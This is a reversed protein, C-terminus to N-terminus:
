ISLNPLFIAPYDTTAFFEIKEVVATATGAGAQVVLAVAVADAGSIAATGSAALNAAGDTSVAVEDDGIYIASKYVPGATIADTAEDTYDYVTFAGGNKQDAIFVWENSFGSIDLLEIQFYARAATQTLRYTIVAVFGDLLDAKALATLVPKTSANGGTATAILGTGGVVSASNFTGWAGNQEWIEGLTKSTEGLAYVGNKFDSSLIPVPTAGGAGSAANYDVWGTVPPPISMAVWGDVPRPVGYDVWGVVPPPISMAAWGDVPRPVDYDVWGTVPAPLGITTWDTIITAAVYILDADFGLLAFEGTGAVLRFAHLLSADEGTLTFSGAEAIIARAAIFTVDSGALAFSGAGASILYGHKLAASAGTVAISGAAASLVYNHLLSASVGTLTFSGADATLSYGSDPFESSPPTFAATYRAVGKTVRLDDIWGNFCSSGASPMAGIFVPNAADHVTGSDTASALLTGDLFLRWTSGSRTIAVHQWSGTSLTGGSIVVNWSAGADTTAEGVLTTGNHYLNVGARGTGVAPRKSYLMRLGSLANPRIWGEVTFNGSGFQLSAHDPVSIWDTTGDFLASSGGFKSQATDIQANGNATCTHANSSNDTFTTSGDSGNAHLLLSVNSFYGDPM